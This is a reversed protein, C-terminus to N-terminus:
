QARRREVASRAGAGTKRTKGRHTRQDGNEKRHGGEATSELTGDHLVQRLLRTQLRRMRGAEARNADDFGHLHLLGHVIYLGLEREVPIGYHTAQAQATNASIVIEGHDFTIVDTPGSIQMFRKHVEAIVRDSVIAIEVLELRSLATGESAPHREV